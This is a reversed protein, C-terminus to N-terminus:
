GAPPLDKMASNVSNRIIKRSRSDDTTNVNAVIKSILGRWVEMGTKGDNFQIAINRTEKVGSLAIANDRQAQSISTNPRVGARLSINDTDESRAGLIVGLAFIYDVTFDGGREIKRYGLKRLEENLVERIIPDVLYIPDRSYTTNVIAESRWAYTQYHGAAFQTPEWADIETGSCAALCSALLLTALTKMVSM